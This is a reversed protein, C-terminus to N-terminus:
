FFYIKKKLKKKIMEDSLSSDEKEEAFVGFVKVCM